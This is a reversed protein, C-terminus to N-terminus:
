VSDNGCPIQMITVPHDRFPRVEIQQAGHKHYWACNAPNSTYLFLTHHGLAKAMDIALRLLGQGIGQKREASVVQLSGLWPSDTSFAAFEPEGTEKLSITGIPRGERLAVVSFPIRDDNLRRNFNAVLGEKTLSADYSRWEDFIWEVLTPIAQPHDKLLGVTIGKSLFTHVNSQQIEKRIVNM